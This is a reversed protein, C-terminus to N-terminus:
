SLKAKLARAIAGVGSTRLGSRLNELLPPEQYFEIAVARVGGAEACRFGHPEGGRYYFLAPAAFTQGQMAIEGELLVLLVGHDRHQHVPVVAGPAFRLFFSHLRRLSPTPADVITGREEGSSYPQFDLASPIQIAGAPATSHPRNQKGNLRAQLLVAPASGQGVLKLQAKPPLYVTTGLETILQSQESAHPVTMSVQTAGSLLIYFQEDENAATTITASDVLVLADVELQKLNLPQCSLLSQASQSKTADLLLEVSLCHIYSKM